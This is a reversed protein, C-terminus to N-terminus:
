HFESWPFREGQPKKLNKNLRRAFVHCRWCGSGATEERNFKDVAELYFWTYKWFWPGEFKTKKKKKKKISSVNLDVVKINPSKIFFKFTEVILFIYM